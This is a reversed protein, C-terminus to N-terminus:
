ALIPRGIQRALNSNERGIHYPAVDQYTSTPDYHEVRGAKTASLRLYATAEAGGRISLGLGRADDFPRVKLGLRIRKTSVARFVHESSAGNKSTDLSFSAACGSGDLGPAVLIPSLSAESGRKGGVRWGGKGNLDGQAQFGDTTAAFGPIAFRLASLALRMWRDFM